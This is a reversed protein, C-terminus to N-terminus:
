EGPRAMQGKRRMAALLALALLSSGSTAACGGKENGGSSSGSSGGSDNSSGGASSAVVDFSSTATAGGPSVVATVTVTGATTPTVDPLVTGPSSGSGNVEAVTYSKSSDIGAGSVHVDLTEGAKPTASVTFLPPEGVVAQVAPLQIYPPTHVDATTLDIYGGEGTANGCWCTASRATVNFNAGPPFSTSDDTSSGGPDVGNLLSASVYGVIEDAAALFHGDAGGSVGFHMTPASVPCTLSCSLDFSLRVTPVGFEDSGVYTASFTGSIATQASANAAGLLLVAFVVRHPM